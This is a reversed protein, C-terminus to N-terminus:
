QWTPGVSTAGDISHCGTCGNSAALEQGTAALDEGGGAGETAEGGAPPSAEGDPEPPGEEGEGGHGGEDDPRSDAQRDVFEPHTGSDNVCACAGIVVAILALLALTSLSHLLSRYMQRCAPRGSIQRGFQPM